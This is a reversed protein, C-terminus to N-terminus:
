EDRERSPIRGLFKAARTHLANTLHPLACYLSEAHVPLDDLSRSEHETKAQILKGQLQYNYTSFLSRDERRMFNLKPENVFCVIM